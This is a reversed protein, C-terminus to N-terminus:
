AALCNGANYDVVSTYSWRELWSDSHWCLMLNYTFLTKTRGAPGHARTRRPPVARLRGTWRSWNGGRRRKGGRVRVQPSGAHTRAHARRVLVVNLRRQARAPTARRGTRPRARTNQRWGTSRYYMHTITDAALDGGGWGRSNGLNTGHSLRRAALTTTTEDGSSFVQASTSTCTQLCRTVIM